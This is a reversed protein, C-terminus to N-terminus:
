KIEPEQTKPKVAKPAPKAAKPSLIMLMTRGEVNPQKEIIGVESCSDAFRVMTDMGLNM